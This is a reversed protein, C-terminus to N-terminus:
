FRATASIGFMRPMGPVATNIGLISGEPFGGVYYRKNGVNTAFASLSYRSGLIENWDAHLGILGYGAIATGPTTSFSTNSIYQTSQAYVDGRVSASGLGSALPLFVQLYVDGSYKPADAYSNYNTTEGFLTVANDTYHADTFAFTGGVRFWDAPAIDAELEAGNVVAKPVSATVASLTGAVIVYATRQVNTIEQDYLALDLRAPRGFLRGGYKAGVEVDETTEPLFLNGGQAATAFVGPAAGNFGGSRWSGRQNVYFLWDADPKYEIGFQWSPKSNSEHEQDTGDAAYIIGGPLQIIENYDWTQRGGVTVSLGRVGTLGGIDYTGQAFIGETRNFLRYQDTGNGPPIYPTIDAAEFNQQNHDIQESAYLGTIYTLRNDFAKGLVQFEESFQDTAFVIGSENTIADYNHEIPFPTGDLDTHMHNDQRGYGFINKISLTPSIEYAIINTVIDGRVNYNEPEDLDTKWPGWAQQLLQEAPVGGAPVGPHAALFAAWAGPVGIISDLLPSYLCAANTNLAYKGNRSGCAYTSYLEGGADSGHNESAQFTTTIDLKDMPKAVLTIRGSNQDIGGIYRDDFLNYVYGDRVKEEGAIRLLLKGPVIPVDVAGDVERLGENGIGATLYGGWQDKPKTTAYLVAGGTANRGFLTGQPGKLVQVSDLDYFASSAGQPIQVDNFYAIVAQRSGSFADITQGRISYAIQNANFTQRVTLGPVGRQLDADTTISREKLQTAGIATEAVPVNSLSEARRRATVVVEEVAGGGPAADPAAATEAVARPAGLTLLGLTAMATAGLWHRRGFHERM